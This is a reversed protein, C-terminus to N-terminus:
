MEQYILFKIYTLILETQYVVTHELMYYRVCNVAYLQHKITKEIFVHSPDFVWDNDPVRNDKDAHSM